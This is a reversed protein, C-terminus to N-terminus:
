HNIRIGRTPYKKLFVFIRMVDCLYGERPNSQFRSLSSVAYSIDMRLSTNMWTLIGMLSQYKRKRDEDLLPSEDLEPHSGAVMPTKEERIKGHEKELVRIVEKTYKIMNIFRNGRKTKSWQTGLYETPDMEVNRIVFKTKFKDM